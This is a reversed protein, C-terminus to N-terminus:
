SSQVGRFSYSSQVGRFCDLSCQVKELEELTKKQIGSLRRLPSSRFFVRWGPLLHPAGSPVMHNMNPNGNGNM